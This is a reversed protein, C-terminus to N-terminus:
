AVKLDPTGLPHTLANYFYVDADPLRELIRSKKRRINRENDPLMSIALTRRGWRSIADVIHQDNESLSHGFVVLGGQHQSFKNYVFSLYDSKNISALKGKSHGETVFLPVAQAFYPEGFLDLLNRGEAARRKFTNGLYARYLHLGGHIYLVRTFERDWVDTNGLDFSEGFFYDIFGGRNEHMIAWYILLDYNTSYVFEYERLENRITELIHSPVRRWPIHIEKITDILARQISQYRNEIRRTHLGLADNVIKAITLSSLVQEFNTTNDLAVFLAQDEDSLPNDIEDAIAKSYISRYDFQDWVAISAGNGVLMGTWRYINRDNIENWDYLLGDYGADLSEM